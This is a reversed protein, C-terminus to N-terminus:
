IYSSPTVPPTILKDKLDSYFFVKHPKPFIFTCLFTCEFKFDGVIQTIPTVTVTMSNPTVTIESESDLMVDFIKLRGVGFGEDVVFVVLLTNPVPTKPLGEVVGAAGAGVKESPPPPFLSEGKLVAGVLEEVGVGAGAGVKESPPPPFEIKLVAGVVVGAGAGLKGFKLVAVVLEVVVAGADGKESPPPFLSEIKLCGAVVVAVGAGGVVTGVKESPPPFLSEIKL